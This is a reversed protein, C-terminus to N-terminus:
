IGNTKQEMEKSIDKLNELFIYMEEVSMSKLENLSVNLMLSKNALFINM